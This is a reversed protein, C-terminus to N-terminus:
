AIFSAADSALILVINAIEDPSGHMQLTTAEALFDKVKTPVTIKL